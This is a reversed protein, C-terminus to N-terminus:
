DKEIIWLAYGLRPNKDDSIENIKISYTIKGDFYTNEGILNINIFATAADFNDRKLLEFLEKARKNSYLYRKKYDLIIIAYISSEILAEDKADRRHTINFFIVIYLIVLLFFIFLLESILVSPLIKSIVLCWIFLPSLTFIALYKFISRRYRKRKFYQIITLIVWTIICIIALVNVLYYLWGGSIKLSYYQTNEDLITSAERYWVPLGDCTIFILVFCLSIIGIILKFKECMINGLVYNATMLFGVIMYVSACYIFKQTLLRIELDSIFVGIFSIVFYGLASISAIFCYKQKESAKLFNCSVVAIFSVLIGILLCIVNSVM